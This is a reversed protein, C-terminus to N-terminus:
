CIIARQLYYTIGKFTDIYNYSCSRMHHLTHEKSKKQINDIEEGIISVFFYKEFLFLVASTSTMLNNDQLSQNFYLDSQNLVTTFIPPFIIAKLEV